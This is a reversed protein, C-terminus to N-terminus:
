LFSESTEELVCASVVKERFPSNEILGCRASCKPIDGEVTPGIICAHGGVELYSRFMSMIVFDVM